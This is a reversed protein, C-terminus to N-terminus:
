AVNLNHKVNRSRLKVALYYLFQMSEVSPDIQVDGITLKDSFSCKSRLIEYFNAVQSYKQM